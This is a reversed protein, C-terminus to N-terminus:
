FTYGLALNCGAVPGGSATRSIPSVACDVLAPGVPMVYRLGAGVSLGLEHARLRDSFNFATAADDTSVGGDVFIAPKLDGIGLNKWALYRLELTGEAGFTGPRPGAADLADLRPTYLASRVGITNEGYGRV